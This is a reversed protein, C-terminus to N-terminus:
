EINTLFEGGTANFYQLDMISFFAVGAMDGGEEFCNPSAQDSACFGTSPSTTGNNAAIGPGVVSLPYHSRFVKLDQPPVFDAIAKIFCPGGYGALGTGHCTIGGGLAGPNALAFHAQDAGANLVKIRIDTAPLNQPAVWRYASWVRYSGDALHPFSPLFTSCNYTGAPISGACVGFLGATDYNGYLGDVGQLKFYQVHANAAAFFSGLSYFAYGLSDSFPPLNAVTGNVAKIMEGTGIARLRVSNLGSNLVLPNTCTYPLTFAAPPVPCNGSPPNGVIAVNGAGNEEQTDGSNGDRAHILQWEFTNYTGSVAERQNVSLQANCVGPGFAENSTGIQGSWLKAATKSLINTPYTCGAGGMGTSNNNGVIIVPAAGFTYTQAKPVALGSIPDNVVVAGSFTNVNFACVQANTASYSSLFPHPGCVAGGPNYGFTVSARGNAFQGDEPRVDTMAVNFPVPSTAKCADASNSDIASAVDCPVTADTDPFGSILNGASAGTIFHLTGNGTLGTANWDGGSGQAFFMRLGVISDVVVYACVVTPNPEVDWAVWINAPEYPPNPNPPVSARPDIALITAGASGNKGSWLHSGCPAATATVPDPSVAAIGATPFQASSGVGLFVTPPAANAASALLLVGVLASALVAIKKCNM